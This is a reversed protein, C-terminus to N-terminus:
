GTVAVTTCDTCELAVDSDDPMYTGIGKCTTCAARRRRLEDRRAREHHEREADAHQAALDRIVDQRILEELKPGIDEGKARRKTIRRRVEDDVARTTTADGADVTGGGGGHEVEAEAEVEVEPPSSETVVGPTRRFDNPLPTPATHGLEEPSAPLKSPTPKNVRQHEAFSRVRLLSRGTAADHWREIVGTGALEDLDDAVHEHTVEDDLPWVAAKVLRAEDYGRGADDVYTWLGIFTLRSRLSLEAVTPSTFFEPKITRIRPM